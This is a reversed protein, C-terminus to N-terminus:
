QRLLGGRLQGSKFCRNRANTDVGDDSVARPAEDVIQPGLVEQDEFISLGLLDEAELEYIEGRTRYSVEGGAGSQPLWWSLLGDHRISGAPVGLDAIEARHDQQDVIL